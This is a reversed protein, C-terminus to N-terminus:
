AEPEPESEGTHIRVGGMLTWAEVRLVPGKPDTGQSHNAAGGLLATAQLDVRWTDPVIIDVGGMLAGVRLEVTQSSLSAERLDLQVGGTVALLRGASLPGAPRDQVGGHYAVHHIWGPRRAHRHRWSDLAAMAALAMWVILAIPIPARIFRNVVVWRRPPPYAQGLTVALRGTRLVLRSRGVGVVGARVRGVLPGVAARKSSAASLARGM